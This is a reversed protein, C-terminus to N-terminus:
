EAQCAALLRELTRDAEAANGHEFPVTFFEGDAAGHAAVHARWTPFHIENLAAAAEGEARIM